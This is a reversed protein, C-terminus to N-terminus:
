LEMQTNIFEKTGEPGTITLLTNSDFGKISLGFTFFDCCSRETKIFGIIADIIPDSGEFSYQYGNDLEKKHLVKNKLLAIVERKYNQLESSTLKCSIIKETIM